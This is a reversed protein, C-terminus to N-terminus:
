LPPADRAAAARLGNKRRRLDHGNEPGLAGFISWLSTLSNCRNMESRPLITGLLIVATEV